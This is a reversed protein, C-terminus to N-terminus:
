AHYGHKEKTAHIIGLAEGDKGAACANAARSLDAEIQDYVKENLNGTTVDATLVKQYSNLKDTCAAAPPLDPWAPATIGSPAAAVPGAYPQSQYCGCLAAAAGVVALFLFIRRM